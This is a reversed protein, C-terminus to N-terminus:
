FRFGRFALFYFGLLVPMERNRERQEPPLRTLYPRWADASPLSNEIWNHDNQRVTIGRLVTEQPVKIHLEVHASKHDAQLSLMIAM